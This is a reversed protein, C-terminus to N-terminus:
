AVSLLECGSHLFTVAACLIFSASTSSVAKAHALASSTGSKPDFCSFLWFCTRIHFM